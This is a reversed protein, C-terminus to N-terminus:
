DHLAPRPRLAGVVLLVDLAGVIQRRLEEEAAREDRVELGEVDVVAVAGDQLVEPDVEVLDGFLLGVRAEAVAAETPERGAEELRHRREPQGAVAVADAVLEADELLRDAVAVLDLAGVLPEAEAVRPLDCPGLVRHLDAEAAVGFLDVRAVAEL